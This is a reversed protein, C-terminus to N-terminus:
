KKKKTGFKNNLSLVIKDINLAYRFIMVTGVMVILYQMGHSINISNILWGFATTYVYLGIFAIFLTAMGSLWYVKVKLDAIEENQMKITKLHDEVFNM